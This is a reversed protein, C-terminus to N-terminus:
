DEDDEEINAININQRKHISSNVEDYHMEMAENDCMSNNNNLTISDKHQTNLTTDNCVEMLDM